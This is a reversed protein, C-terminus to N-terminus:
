NKGHVPGRLKEKTEGWTEGNEDVRVFGGDYGDQDAAKCITFLEVADFADKIEQDSM